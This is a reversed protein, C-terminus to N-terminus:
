IFTEQTSIPLERLPIPFLSFALLSFCNYHFHLFPIRFLLSFALFSLAFLPFVLLPLAYLSFEPLNTYFSDLLPHPFYLDTFM